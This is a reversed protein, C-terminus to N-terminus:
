QETVETAAESPHEAAVAEEAVAEDTENLEAQAPEDAQQVEAPSETAVVQDSSPSVDASLQDAHEESVSDTALSVTVSELLETSPQLEIRDSGIGLAVLWAQMEQGWLEGSEGEPYTVRLYAEPMTLLSQVLERLAPKQAIVDGHRPSFWFEAGFGVEAPLSAAVADDAVVPTATYNNPGPTLAPEQAAVADIVAGNVETPAVESVDAGSTQTVADTIQPNVIEGGVVSETALGESETDTQGWAVTACSSLLLAIITKKMPVSFLM